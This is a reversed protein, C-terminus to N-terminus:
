VRSCMRCSDSAEYLALASNVQPGTGCPVHGPMQATLNFSPNPPKRCLPVFFYGVSLRM